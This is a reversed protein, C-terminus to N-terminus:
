RLLHRRNIPAETFARGWPPGPQRTPHAPTTLGVLLGLHPIHISDAIDNINDIAADNWGSKVEDATLARLEAALHRAADQSRPPLEALLKFEAHGVALLRGGFRDEWSRLVATVEDIGEFWNGPLWGM